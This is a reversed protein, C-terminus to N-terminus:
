GINMIVATSKLAGIEAEGILGRTAPTLPTTVLIYDAAAMMEKVQPSGYSRDMTTDGEFLEPRRRLAAINMGFTRARSAAASGVGGYGVIGLTRGNLTDGVFPEWVAQEQQRLVRRLDFAFFLMVAIVWDALPGKFAGRANTLLAPHALLEPVLIGEVGTWLCHVWRVRNALPLVNALLRADLYAYLIADANSASAKLKEIDNTILISVNPPSHSLFEKLFPAEPDAIVLLSFFSM